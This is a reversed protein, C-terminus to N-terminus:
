LATTRAMEVRVSVPIGLETLVCVVDGPAAPPIPDSSNSKDSVNFHLTKGQDALLFGAENALPGRPGESCPPSGLAKEFRTESLTALTSTTASSTSKAPSASGCGSLSLSLLAVTILIKRM